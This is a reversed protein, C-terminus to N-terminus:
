HYTLRDQTIKHRSTEQNGKMASTIHLGNYQKLREWTISIIM